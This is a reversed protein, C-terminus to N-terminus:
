PDKETFAAVSQAFKLGSLELDRYAVGTADVSLFPLLSLQHKLPDVSTVTADTFFDYNRIAESMAINCLHKPFDVLADLYQTSAAATELAAAVMEQLSRAAAASSRKTFFPGAAPTLTAPRFVCTTGDASPVVSGLAIQWHTMVERAVEEVELEKKSSRNVSKALVDTIRGVQEIMITSAGPHAAAGPPAPPADAAMLSGQHHYIGDCFDTFSSKVALYPATDVLLM